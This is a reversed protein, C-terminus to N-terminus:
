PGQPAASAVPPGARPALPMGETLQPVIWAVLRLTGHVTTTAAGLRNLVSCVGLLKELQRTGSAFDIRRWTGRSRRIWVSGGGTRSTQWSVSARNTTM